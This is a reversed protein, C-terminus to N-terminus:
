RPAGNSAPFAGVMRDTLAAQPVWAQLVGKPRQGWDADDEADEDDDDDGDDADDDDDTLIYVGTHLYECRHRYIHVRTYIHVGAHLFACAHFYVCRQTNIYVVTRIYVFSHTYICVQTVHM